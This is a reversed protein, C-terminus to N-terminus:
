CGDARGGIEAAAGRGDAGAAGAAVGAGGAAAAALAPTSASPALRGASGLAGASSRRVPRGARLAEPPRDRRADTGDQSSIMSPLERWGSQSPARAAGTEM